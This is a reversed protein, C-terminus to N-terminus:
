LMWNDDAGSAAIESYHASLSGSFRVVSRFYIPLSLKILQPVDWDLDASPKERPPERVPILLM